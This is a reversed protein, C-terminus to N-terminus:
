APAAAQVAIPRVVRGGCHPCSGAMAPRGNRMTVSQADLMVVQQRDRLCYASPGAPTAKRHTLSAMTTLSSVGKLQAIKAELAAQRTAAKEAQRVRKEAVSRPRNRVRAKEAQRARKEHDERVTALREELRRLVRETRKHTKTDRAV